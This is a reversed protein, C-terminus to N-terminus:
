NQLPLRYEQALQRTMTHIQVAAVATLAQQLAQNQQQLAHHQDDVHYRHELQRQLTHVQVAGHAAQALHLTQYRDDVYARTAMVVAPDIKLNVVSANTVLLVIRVVQTRGSGQSLLPKYTPPVNAVAILDGATDFIGAERIWWGGETEPIVQEVVIQAPNAPDIFVTNVPARRKQNVLKTQKRDPIPTQGNGDGVALTAYHVQSGLVAANAHKAEGVATLIAFYDHSV